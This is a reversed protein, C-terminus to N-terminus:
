SDADTGGLHMEIMDRIAWNEADEMSKIADAGTVDGTRHEKGNLHRKMMRESIFRRECDSVPCAFPMKVEADEETFGLMDDLVGSSEIADSRKKRPYNPTLHVQRVHRELVHKFGFGKDCGDRDCKFKPASPSKLHVTEIHTALTRETSFVKTCEDYTCPVVPRTSDHIKIHANMNNRLVMKGCVSCAMSKHCAKAHKQLLSWKSYYTECGPYGCGYRLADSHVLQHKRLKSPTQFSKDCGEHTCPYPKRGEHAM